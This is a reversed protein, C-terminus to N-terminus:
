LVLMLAALVLLAIALLLWPMRRRALADSAGGNAALPGGGARRDMADLYAAVGSFGLSGLLRRDIAGALTDRQGAMLDRFQAPEVRQEVIHNKLVGFVLPVAIELVRGAAALGLGSVAAIGGTLSKVRDGFLAGTAGPGVSTLRDLGDPATMARAAGAAPGVREIAGSRLIRLIREADAGNAARQAFAGLIAPLLANLAAQTPEHAAGTARALVSPTEGGFSDRLMELLNVM